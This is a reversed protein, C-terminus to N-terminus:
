LDQFSFSAPLLRSLHISLLSLSPPSSCSIYDPPSGWDVRMEETPDAIAEELEPPFAERVAPM